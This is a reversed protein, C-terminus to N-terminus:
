QREEPKADLEDFLLNMAQRILKRAELVRPADPAEVNALIGLTVGVNSVVNRLPIPGWKAFQAANAAEPSPAVRGFVSAPVFTHDPEEPPVPPVSAREAWARNYRAAAEDDISVGDPAQWLTPLRGNRLADVSGEGWGLAAEVKFPWLPDMDGYMPEGTEELRGINGHQSLDTMDGLEDQELDMEERRRRIATGLRRGGQAKRFEDVLKSSVGLPKVLTELEESGSVAGWATGAPLSFANDVAGYSQPRVQEDGREILRWTTHSSGSHKAMTEISVNRRTRADRVLRGVVRRAEPSPEASVM